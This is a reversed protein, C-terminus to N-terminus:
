ARLVNGFVLWALASKSGLSLWIFAREGHVYSAWKGIGAHQLWMNVAFSMFFVFEVGIIVYVFAPPAPGGLTYISIAIWPVAGAISGFWFALWDPREGTGQSREMLLGFLIMCSNVGFLGVLAAVDRIGTLTAILVIMISSSISYEIWRIPNRRKDIMARYRDFLLPSALLLHDIAAFALFVAVLTGVRLDFVAEPLQVGRQNVPDDTLWAGVVTFALGNSMTLILVAQVAHALGVGLNLRRLGRGVDLDM